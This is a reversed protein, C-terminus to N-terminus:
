RPLSTNKIDLKYGKKLKLIIIKVYPYKMILTIIKENM